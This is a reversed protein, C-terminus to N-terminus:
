QARKVFECFSDLNILWDREGQPFARINGSPVVLRVRAEKMEAIQAESVGEQLTFLHKTPIKDAERLVQRWRDKCCTKAALMVLDPAGKGAMKYRTLSPFLFDPQSKRETRAQADFQLQKALFISELGLELSKGSRSKRRNTVSNALKLFPEVDNFGRRIYPLVHISEVLKFVEFELQRRSMLLNDVTIGSSYPILQEVFRFIEAGSPFTHSWEVPLSLGSGSVESDTWSLIVQKPEVPCGLWSEVQEEEEPNEAIWVQASKKKFAFIIVAGTNESDQLPNSRGGWRTLRYENRTGEFFKNNYYTAVVGDVNLGQQPFSVQQFGSKPNLKERSCIEPFCREFFEKPLYLGVQHGGTIGTDNGSLRKVAWDYSEAELFELFTTLNM